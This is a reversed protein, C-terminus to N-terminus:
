LLMCCWYFMLWVCIVAVLLMVQIKVLVCIYAVCLVLLANVLVCIVAVLLM